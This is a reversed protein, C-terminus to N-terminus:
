AHLLSAENIRSEGWTIGGPQNRPGPIVQNEIGLSAWSDGRPSGVGVTPLRDASRRRARPLSMVPAGLSECLCLAHILCSGATFERDAICGIDVLRREGFPRGQWGM